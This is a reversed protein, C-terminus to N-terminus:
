NCAPIACLYRVEAPDFKKVPMKASDKLALMAPDQVSKGSANKTASILDSLASAVDKVANILLVQAEPQESGLSGAGLKVVDALRTITKVACQAAVALQEQNSAAGAVLTKTDEVLAKATKLINESLNEIISTRDVYREDVKAISKTITDIMSNVAGTQSAAEEITGLLDQLVDKMDDAATDISQHTHTATKTLDLINTQQKSSSTRSASGVASRALPEFYSSVTSIKAISKTITDIMSNVAGTQSAAEEITGLLDQLVDKMDDAATDISQHTHTAKPNGGGEKCAYMFQLASETVTKTLDLINTQQKSSSTRSASGVASRALPEFYSSVTSILHGLNQPEEKAAQRIQDVRDLIERASNIMQEQYAKLSKEDRPRLNQGIADLSAQDLDRITMNLHEIANDCEQQGPASDKIASVLRKIAESVSKSHHSYLQYTPPDKPNVALQKAAQLMNCAGEIMARGAQSIPEQAERAQASIKAPKSAFEPSSAFTTLEDVAHILPKAAEACKQRNEDTFDQDLAKIAKVLSATSNAVDKASQVFHRKAVPNATKSSATRCSNCLSSTHKAVVTAASLVQQQSSAPNTLNQCAMQIAQNARAFQSQDVVGPRGPESAPDSIGVLYAA